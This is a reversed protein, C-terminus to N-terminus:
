NVLQSVKEVKVVSRGKVTLVIRWLGDPWMLQMMPDFKDALPELKVDVVANNM